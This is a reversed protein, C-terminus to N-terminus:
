TITGGTGPSYSSMVITGFDKSNFQTKKMGYVLASSVGLQNEYDDLVETWKFKINSGSYGYARGFAICGSQAGCFIGRAVGVAADALYTQHAGNIDTSPGFPVRADEHIIVGSYMGVAGTFLPNKTVQGGQLAAKQIDMWQGAATNRRLDYVQYPHLFAVYCEMGNMKIPRIPTPLTRAKIVAKDLMRLNFAFTSPAAIGDPSLAAEATDVSTVTAADTLDAPLIAYDSSLYNTVSGTQTVTPAVVANMGSYINNTNTPNTNGALQNILSTDLRQAWWDVLGAQAEARIDFTVRQQSMNGVVKVAHRLQNVTITDRYTVLSEEQGELTSDGAIGAGNLQMRLGYHLTDGAGKNLEDRVQIVSDSTTGIFKDLQTAKLSEVFLKKAWVKVALDDNTGFTANPNPSAM